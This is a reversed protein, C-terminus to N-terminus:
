FTNLQTDPQIIASDKNKLIYDVINLIKWSQTTNKFAVKLESRSSM